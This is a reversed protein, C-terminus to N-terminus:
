REPRPKLREAAARFAAASSPQLEFQGFGTRDYFLLSLRSGAINEYVWEEANPQGPFDARGMTRELTVDPPGLVIYVEGRDTQWGADGTERFAETAYRVRQFFQERFENLETIPLPDRRKWFRDWAARQEVPSGVDLSDLEVDDAIYRLFRLVDSLNAVMWQDSITLLLPTRQQENGSPTVEIWSKGLPLSDSPISVIAYRLPTTGASLPTRARWVVSGADGIVRVDLADDDGYSELYLMPAAGGYPVTHRANFILEPLSDRTTRGRAQYVLVPAGIRTGAEGYAPVTITDTMRFGRSSNADAAQLRVSYSGPTLAFAQQYVISEDIRGTESFSPIRVTERTEFRKVTISDSDMFAIRVDYEAFFGRGERQFRLASNPISLGLLVYTSDVPGAITVFSAVVPFPGSGTLFGLDRYIELPRSFAETRAPRPREASPPGGCAALAVCWAASTRLLATQFCRPGGPQHGTSRTRTLM